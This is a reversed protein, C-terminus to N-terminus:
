TTVSGLLADLVESLESTEFPKSLRRRIGVSELQEDAQPAFGSVLVIPLDPLLEHVARALDIGSLQPMNLDTILIDLGGPDSRIRELAERPDSCASPRYGLDELISTIPSLIMTEDDVYLIRAGDGRVVPQARPPETTPANVAALYVDFTTGRGPASEVLIVGGHEEVIGHVVSLGLGSGDGPGKTTFFPEYIRELTEPSMGVGDDRVRFRAWEGAALSPHGPQTVVRSAEFRITGTRGEFSQWANTGLNVLVQQLQTPDADVRPADPAVNTELVVGAPLTARLLDTAEVVADNMTLISRSVPQKRSFALIQQVLKEARSVITDMARLSQAARHDAPLDRRAVAVSLGIGTLLNNFDHAIGGALTGIAEMKQAQRLQAELDRRKREADVRETIDRAIAIVRPRGSQVTKRAMSTEFWRPVGGVPLQYQAGSSRGNAVAEKIAGLIVSAADPPLVEAITRGMFAAPPVALLSDHRARYDYLRGEDDVDFLLDPLAALTSELEARAIAAKEEAAKRHTVDVVVAIHQTPEEGVGWMPSVNLEVWLLTGDKRVLRKEMSFERIEGRKLREMLALDPALDDPCTITMFDLGLMERESYGIMEVYKHNVRVFRGTATELLGVGVAAQEFLVRFRSESERLSRAVERLETPDDEPPRREDM